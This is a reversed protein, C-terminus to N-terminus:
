LRAFGFGNVIADIPINQKCLECDNPSYTAYDPIDEPTFIANIPYKYVEDKASFVASIGAIRGGYYKVVDVASSAEKGTTSSGLLVLVSRDRIMHQVNERFLLQGSPTFEPTTVYITQHANMSIFGGETLQNALYAGIVECGDMCLITDVITSTVYKQAIAKAIMNAESQRCKVLSMDIYYNVHSNVTAFHGPIVRLVVGQHTKSLIKRYGEM